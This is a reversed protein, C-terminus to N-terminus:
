KKVLDLAYDGVLASTGDSRRGQVSFLNRGETLIRAPVSLNITRVAGSGRAKLGSRKLVEAGQPSHLTVSYSEYDETSALLHLTLRVMAANKPISFSQGGGRTLGPQLVFSAIVPEGTGTPERKLQEYERRLRDREERTTRLEEALQNSNSQQETIRQELERERAELRQEQDKFEQERRQWDTRETRTEALENRLRSRDYILWIAAVTMILVLAAMAYQMAPARPSFLALFSHWRSPEAEPGPEEKLNLIYHSLAKANEVRQRREPSKLFGREFRELEEGSLQGQVYADILDMEVALMQDFLEDDTFFRDELARQEREPLDDFLYRM